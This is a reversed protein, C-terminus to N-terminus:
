PSFNGSPLIRTTGSVIHPYSILRAMGNTVTLPRVGIFSALTLSKSTRVESSRGFSSLYADTNNFGIDPSKLLDRVKARSTKRGAWVYAGRLTSSCRAM